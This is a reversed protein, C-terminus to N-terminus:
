DLEVLYKVIDLHCNEFALDLATQSFMNTANLDAGHEVLCKVVGYHGNSSAMILATKSQFTDEENM